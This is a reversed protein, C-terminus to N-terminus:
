QPVERQWSIMGNVGKDEQCLATICAYSSLRNKQKELAWRKLVSVTAIRGGLEVKFSHNM